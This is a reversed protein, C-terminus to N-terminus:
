AARNSHDGLPEINKNEYLDTIAFCLDYDNWELDGDTISFTKFLELDKYKSIAPIRSLFIFNKFDIVRVLGDNFELRIQYDKIYEAKVVKLVQCM